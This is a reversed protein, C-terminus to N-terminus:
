IYMKLFRSLAEVSSKGVYQNIIGRSFLLLTPLSGLSHKTAIKPYSSVDLKGVKLLPYKEALQVLIPEIAKCPACKASTFAVLVPNKGQIEADFTIDSFSIVM